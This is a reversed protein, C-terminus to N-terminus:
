LTVLKNYISHNFLLFLLLINDNNDCCMDFPDLKKSLYMIYNDSNVVSKTGYSMIM